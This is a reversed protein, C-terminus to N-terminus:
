IQVKFAVVSGNIGRSLSEGFDSPASVMPFM